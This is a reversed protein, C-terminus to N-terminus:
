KYSNFYTNQFTEFVDILLLVDVKLYINHHCRPYKQKHYELTIQMNMIKIM